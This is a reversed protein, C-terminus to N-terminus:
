YERAPRCARVMPHCIGPIKVAPLCFNAREEEAVEDSQRAREPRPRVQLRGDGMQATPMPTTSLKSNFFIEVAM